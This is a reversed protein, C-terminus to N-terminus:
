YWLVMLFWEWFYCKLCYRKCACLVVIILYIQIVDPRSCKTARSPTKQGDGAAQRVLSHRAKNIGFKGYEQMATAFVPM